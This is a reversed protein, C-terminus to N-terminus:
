IKGTAKLFKVTTSGFFVNFLVSDSVLLDINKRSESNDLGDTVSSYITLLKNTQSREQGSFDATIVGSILKTV